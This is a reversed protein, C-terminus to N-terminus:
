KKITKRVKDGEKVMYVGKAKPANQLRRGDMTYWENARKATKTKDIATTGSAENTITVDNVDSIQTDDSYIIDVKERDFAIRKVQKGNQTFEAKQASVTMTGCLLVATFMWTIKQNMIVKTNLYIIPQKIEKSQLYIFFITFQLFKKPKKKNKDVKEILLAM